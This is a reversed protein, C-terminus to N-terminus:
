APTTAAPLRAAADRPARGGRRVDAEYAARLRRIPRWAAASASPPRGRRACPRAPKQGGARGGRGATFSACIDPVNLERGAARENNIYTVVATKLGSLSFRLDGSHLMARPFAFPMRTARPPAVELDVPGGPYGLGSRRPWRTSPRAWRMTSPRASCRTTAGTAGYARAHHQGRVRALGGGAARLGGARDQERVPARGFSERVIFPIDAGWAAGKAFAVGVVLAGVLGPAYTVAVADLDRWRCARDGWARRCRRRACEDCVGCIAEIHKRSAIEPVVGGFRAHFDVQTAVVDSRVLSGRRRHRRRGDRRLFVRHGSHSSSKDRDCREGRLPRGRDGRSRPRRVAAMERRPARRGAADCAATRFRQWPSPPCRARCSSPTRATPTTARAAAWCRTASPRTCRRPGPTQACTSGALEHAGGPQPRRRGRPRAARSRHRPPAVRSGRGGESDAREGDVVWGGAYGVLPAEASLPM